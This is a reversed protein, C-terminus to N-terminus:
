SSRFRSQGVIWLGRHGNLKARPNMQPPFWSGAGGTSLGAHFGYTHPWTTFEDRYIETRNFHPTKVYKSSSSSETETRIGNQENFIHMKRGIHWSTDLANRMNEDKRPHDWFISQPSHFRVVAFHEFTKSKASKRKAQLYVTAECNATLQILSLSSRPAYCWYHCLLFFIKSRLMM